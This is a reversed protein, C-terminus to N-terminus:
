RAVEILFQVLVLFAWVNKSKFAADTMMMNPASIIVQGLKNQM